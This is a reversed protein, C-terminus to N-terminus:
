DREHVEEDTRVAVSKRLLPRPEDESTLLRKPNPHGILTLGFMEALEREPYLVAHYTPFVSTLESDYPVLMRVRLEEDRAFSRVFYVVEVQSGTDIGFIDVLYTFGADHLSKLLTAGTGAPVRLQTGLIAHEELEVEAVGSSAITARLATADPKL